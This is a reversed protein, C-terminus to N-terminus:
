AIGTANSYSHVGVNFKVLIDTKADGIQQDPGQAFGVIRFAYTSTAAATGSVAITSNGSITSGTNNTQAAALILLGGRIVVLYSTLAAMLTGVPFFFNFLYLGAQLVDSGAAATEMPNATIASAWTVGSDALAWFATPVSVFAATLAVALLFSTAQQGTGGAVPNGKAPMVGSFVVYIDKFWNWLFIQFLTFVLWSVAAKFFNAFATFGESNAPDFDMVYDTHPLAIALISGASGAPSTGFSPAPKAGMSDAIAANATSTAASKGPIESVSFSGTFQADYITKQKLNMYESNTTEGGGGGGSSTAQFAVIKDVGERFLNATLTTDAVEWITKRESPLSPLAYTEEGGIHVTFSSHGPVSNLTIFESSGTAVYSNGVVEFPLTQGRIVTTTILVNDTMSVVLTQGAGVTGHKIQFPTGPGLEPDTTQSEIELSQPFTADNIITVNYASLRGVAFFCCLGCLMWRCFNFLAHSNVHISPRSLNKV